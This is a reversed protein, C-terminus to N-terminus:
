SPSPSARPTEPGFPEPRMSSTQFAEAWAAYNDVQLRDYGQIRTRFVPRHDMLEDLDGQLNPLGSVGDPGTARDASTVGSGARLVM